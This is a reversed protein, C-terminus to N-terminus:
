SQIRQEHQEPSAQPVPLAVERLDELALRLYVCTSEATRHGLLDGITKVTNGQRLLHIAYSHRLCHAGQSPIDLGSREVWAHFTMTIANRRLPEIPARTRLFLERYSCRPRGNRLYHLLIAGVADTLPLPLANGTKRQRSWIEGRRWYIDGLTLALIDCCRLGYTAM